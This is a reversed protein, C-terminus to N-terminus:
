AREKKLESLLQSILDDKEDIIARYNNNEATLSDIREWVFEVSAVTKTQNNFEWHVTGTPASQNKM